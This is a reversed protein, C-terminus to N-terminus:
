IVFADPLLVDVVSSYERIRQGKIIYLVYYCAMSMSSTGQLDIKHFFGVNVADTLYKSPSPIVSVWEYYNELIYLSPYINM